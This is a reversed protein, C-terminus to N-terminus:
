EPQATDGVPPGGDTRRDRSPAPEHLGRACRTLESHEVGAFTYGGDLLRVLLGARVLEKRQEVTLGFTSLAADSITSHHSRLWAIARCDLSSM